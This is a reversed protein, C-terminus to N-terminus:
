AARRYQPVDSHPRNEYKNAKIKIIKAYMDDYLSLSCELSLDLKDM